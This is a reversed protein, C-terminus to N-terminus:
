ELIETYYVRKLNSIGILIILISLGTLMIIFSTLLEGTHPLIGKPKQPPIISYPPEYIPPEPVIPVEAEKFKIEVEAKSGDQWIGNDKVEANGKIGPCIISVIGLFLLAM